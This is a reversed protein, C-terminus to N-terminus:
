MEPQSALYMFPPAAHISSQFIDHYQLVLNMAQEETFGSGVLTEFYHRVVDIIYENRKNTSDRMKTYDQDKDKEMIEQLDREMNDREM